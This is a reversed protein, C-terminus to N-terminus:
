HKITIVSCIRDQINDLKFLEYNGDEKLWVLERDVVNISSDGEFIRSLGFEYHGLQLTYISKPEDIMDSFPRLLRQDHERKWSDELSKNTKYDHICLNVKNNNIYALLIDMTGAYPTKIDPGDVFLRVEPLIPYVGKSEFLMHVWYSHIAWEKASHPILYGDEFQPMIIESIEEPCGQLFRMMSEGFLHVGTGANSAITGSLKWERLLDEAKKHEKLAKRKAITDWDVEKQYQHCLASVSPLEKEGGLTELFYKHGEEEFRVKQFSKLIHNRIDTIIQPEKPRKLVDSIHILKDM